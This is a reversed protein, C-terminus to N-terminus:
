DVNASYGLAFLSLIHVSYCYVLMETDKVNPYEDRKMTIFVFYTVCCIENMFLAFTEWEFTNYNLFDRSRKDEWVPLIHHKSNFRKWVSQGKTLYSLLMFVAVSLVWSMFVIIEM